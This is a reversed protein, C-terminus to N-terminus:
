FWWDDFFTLCWCYVHNYISYKILRVFWFWAKKWSCVMFFMNEWKEEFNKKNHLYFDIFFVAFRISFVVESNIIVLQSFFWLCATHAQSFFIYRSPRECVVNVPKTKPQNLCGAGMWQCKRIIFTSLFAVNISQSGKEKYWRLKHIVGLSLTMMM